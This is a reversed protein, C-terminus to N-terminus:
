LWNGEGDLLHLRRQIDEGKLLSLADFLAVHFSGLGQTQLAGEEGALNLMAVGLLAAQFPEAVSLYVGALAGAMCGTGTLRALKPTGNAVGLTTVGDTIVDVPGTALVVAGVAKAYATFPRAMVAMNEDTVVDATGADIGSAHATDGALSLIESSNGKIIQPTYERIWRRGFDLRLTSCGVGVVDILRPINAEKARLGAAEMAAMRDDTINGLNVVLARADGVVEAAERPHGAMNPRAGVALIANASDNM